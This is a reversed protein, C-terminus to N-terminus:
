ELAKLRLFIEQWRKELPKAASECQVLTSRMPMMTAAYDGFVGRLAEEYDTLLAKAFSVCADGMQQDFIEQVRPKTRWAAFFGGVLFLFAISCLLYAPWTTGLAGAVSGLTLFILCSAVFAALAGNRRRLEKSLCNRVRVSELRMAAAQDLRECFRKGAMALTEELDVRTMPLSLDQEQLRKEVTRAHDECSALIEMADEKGIHQFTTTLRGIFAAEMAAATRDSGFLRFLSPLYRMRKRLLRLTDGNGVRFSSALEEMRSELQRRFSAHMLGIGNEIEDLLRNKAGIDRQTRDLRDELLRLVEAARTKWDVINERYSHDKRIEAVLYEWIEGCGSALYVDAEMNPNPAAIPFVPPTIGCRKRALDTVHGVLVRLDEQPRLDAQELVFVLKHYLNEPLRAVADWTVPDWPNTVALVVLVFDCESALDCVAEQMAPTFGNVGPTDIVAFDGLAPADARRLIDALPHSFRDPGAGSKQYITIRKTEPLKSVACLPARYLANILTSKGANVAGLVMFARTRRLGADISAEGLYGSVDAGIESALARTALVVELLRQQDPFFLSGGTTAM